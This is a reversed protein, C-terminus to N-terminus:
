PPTYGGGPRDPRGTKNALWGDHHVATPGGPVLVGKLGAALWDRVLRYDAANTGDATWNAVRLADVHCMIGIADLNGHEYSPGVVMRHQGDVRFDVASISFLAQAERMASVHRTIHDPLLEDDDGCFGVFEGLALTSGVWFPVAGISAEAAPTRWSENIEVVVLNRCGGLKGEYAHQGAIARNRDSVVVHQVQPWDQNRVSRLCRKLLQERGVITPTVISVLSM